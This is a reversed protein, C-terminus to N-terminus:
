DIFLKDKKNTKTVKWLSNYTDIVVKKCQETLDNWKVKKGLHSYSPADIQNNTFGHQGFGNPSYPNESMGVYVFEGHENRKKTFVVTFRDITEGKNDYVRIYKPQRM